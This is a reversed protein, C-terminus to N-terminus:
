PVQVEAIEGYDNDRTIGFQHHKELIGILRFLEEPVLHNVYGHCEGVQKWSVPRGAHDNRLGTAIQKALQGIDVRAGFGARPGFGENVQPRRWGDGYSWSWTDIRGLLSSVEGVAQPVELEMIYFENFTHGVQDPYPKASFSAAAFVTPYSNGGQAYFVRGQHKHGHIVLWPGLEADVLNNILKDGNTMQSYDSTAIKDNKFPHHHCVLINASREGAEKLEALLRSITHDSVRGHVYEPPLGDKAAGHYAASNLLIFRARGVEVVTFNKAWYELWGREDDVPFRPKLAQVQGKADFGSYIYRSDVDHNGAAGLTLKAELAMRVKEVEGWVYQLGTPDAKDGLDGCCLLVDARIADKKITEILGAFANREPDSQIQALDLWSPSASKDDPRSVYAHFDTLVAIRLGKAGSM